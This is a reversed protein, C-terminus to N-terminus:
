IWGSSKLLSLSYCSRSARSVIPRILDSIPNFVNTKINNNLPHHPLIIIHIFISYYSEGLDIKKSM